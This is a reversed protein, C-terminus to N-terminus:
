KIKYDDPCSLQINTREKGVKTWVKPVLWTLRYTKKELIIKRYNGSINETNKEDLLKELYERSWEVNGVESDIFVSVQNVFPICEKRRHLVLLGKEDKMSLSAVAIGMAARLSILIQGKENKIIDATLYNRSNKALNEVLLKSEVSTLNEISKSIGSPAQSTQCSLLQFSIGVLALCKCIKMQQTSLLCFKMKLSYSIRLYM